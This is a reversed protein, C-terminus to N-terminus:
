RYIHVSLVCDGEGHFRGLREDIQPTSYETGGLFSIELGAGRSNDGPHDYHQFSVYIDVEKDIITILTEDLM